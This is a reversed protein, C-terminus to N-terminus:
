SMPGGAKSGMRLSAHQPNTDGKFIWRGRGPKFGWVKSGIAPVSVVVGSVADLIFISRMISFYFRMYAFVLVTVTHIVLTVQVIHLINWVSDTVEKQKHCNVAFQGCWIQFGTYMLFDTVSHRVKNCVVVMKVDLQNASRHEFLALSCLGLPKSWSNQVRLSWLWMLTRGSKAENLLTNLKNM